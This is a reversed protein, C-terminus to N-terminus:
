TLSGVGTVYQLKANVVRALTWSRIRPAALVAMVSSGLWVGSLVAVTKVSSSPSAFILKGLMAMGIASALPLGVDRFYGWVEGPLLRRHTIPVVVLMNLINLVAWVTAAGVPGFHKTVPFMVPVVIAISLLGALLNLKTWGFALQLAYPLYLLANLASGIALVRLIPAAMTATESSRTWLLLIDFSFLSLVAALPLVLVAMLQSGRHYSESIGSEDGVAVQASMRPFIVNFVAVAIVLLGNAAAWALTYYGFIRLSLLKSIIVKDVQTLTLGILAIGSMGAAFRWIKRVNTLDFRASRDAAPLSSWVLVAILLAHVFAAAAQWALFATITPSVLWLVLVSGGQSLTVMAVKLCNFQVQRGLGMLAGQYFSLPWQFVSLVAMIMVARTVTRVSIAGAKIWHTAIVPAVALIVAGIAIGILWYGAELTRVLDRGEAAKGAQVSYRAMERNMTPSLGFDLVQLITQLMLYFGILGYSEIGLFKLYLPICVIQVLFAWGVGAFNSALDLKLSPVFKIKWPLNM